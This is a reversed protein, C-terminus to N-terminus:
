RSLVAGVMHLLDTLMSSKLRMDLPTDASLSPCTNAEILWARFAADLMIDFGWVEFCINPHPVWMKLQTNIPTEVSILTKAVLDHVQPPHHRSTLAM